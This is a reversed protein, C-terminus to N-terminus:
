FYHTLREEGPEDFNVSLTSSRDGREYNSWWQKLAYREMSTSAAIILTGSADIDVKM